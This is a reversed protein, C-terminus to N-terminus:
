INLNNLYNDVESGLYYHRTSKGTGVTKCSVTKRLKKFERQYIDSLNESYKNPNLEMKGKIRGWLANGVLTGSVYGEAKLQEVSQTFILVNEDGSQIAGIFAVVENEKYYYKTAHGDGLQIKDLSESLKKTYKKYKELGGDNYTNNCLHVLILSNAKKGSIYGMKEIQEKTIVGRLGKEGAKFVRGMNM